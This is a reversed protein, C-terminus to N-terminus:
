SGRKEHFKPDDKYCQEYPADDELNDKWWQLADIMNQIAKISGKYDTCDAIGGLYLTLEELGTAPVYHNIDAKFGYEPQQTAM